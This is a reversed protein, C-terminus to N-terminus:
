SHPGLLHRGFLKIPKGEKGRSGSENHALSINGAHNPLEDEPLLSSYRM